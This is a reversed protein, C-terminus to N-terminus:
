ASCFPPHQSRHRRLRRRPDGLPTPPHRNRLAPPPPNEATTSAPNTNPYQTLPPLSPRRCRHKNSKNNEKYRHKHQLPLPNTHLNRSPRYLLNHYSTSHFHQLDNDNKDTASFTHRTSTSTTEVPTDHQIVTPQEAPQDISHTSTRSSAPQM